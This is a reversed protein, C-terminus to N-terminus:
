QSPPPPSAIRCNRQLSVGSNHSPPTRFLIYYLIRPFM